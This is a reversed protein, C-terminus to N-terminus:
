EEEGKLREITERAKRPEDLLDALKKTFELPGLRVAREALWLYDHLDLGPVARRLRAIWRGTAITIWWTPHRFRNVVELVLAIDEPQEAHLITWPASDPEVYIVGDKIWNRIQREGPHEEFQQSLRDAIDAAGMPPVTSNLLEQARDRQKPYTTRRRQRQAEL